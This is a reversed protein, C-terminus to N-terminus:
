YIIYVLDTFRIKAARLPIHVYMIGVTTNKKMRFVCVGASACVYKLLILIYVLFHIQNENSFLRWEV